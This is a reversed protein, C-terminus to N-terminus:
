DECVPGPWGPGERPWFSPWQAQSLTLWFVLVPLHPQHQLLSSMMWAESRLSSKPIKESLFSLRQHIKLMPSFDRLTKLISSKPILILESPQYLYCCCTGHCLLKINAHGPHRDSSHAQILIFPSSSSISNLGSWLTCRAKNPAQIRM